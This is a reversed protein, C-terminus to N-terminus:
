KFQAHHKCLCSHLCMCAATRCHTPGQSTPGQSTPSTRGQSTPGLLFTLCSEYQPHESSGHSVSEPGCSHPSLLALPLSCFLQFSHIKSLVNLSQIYKFLDFWKFLHIKSPVILSDLNIHIFGHNLFNKISFDFFMLMKHIIICTM